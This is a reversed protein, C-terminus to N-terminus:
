GRGRIDAMLEGRIATLRKAGLLAPDEERSAASSSSSSSAAAARRDRLHYKLLSVEPRYYHLVKHVMTESQRDITFFAITFREANAQVMGEFAPLSAVSSPKLTPAGSRRWPMDEATANMTIVFVSRQAERAKARAEQASSYAPRGASVDWAFPVSLRDFSPADAEHMAYDYGFSVRSVRPMMHVLAALLGGPQGDEGLPFEARHDEYLKRRMVSLWGTARPDGPDKRYIERVMAVAEAEVDLDKPAGGGGPFRKQCYSEVEQAICTMCLVSQLIEKPIDYKRYMEDVKKKAMATRVAGDDVLPSAAVPAPALPVDSAPAEESTKRRKAERKDPAPPTSPKPSAPAAAAAGGGGGGGGAAADESKISPEMKERHGTGMGHAARVPPDTSAFAGIALEADNLNIHPSHQTNAEAAAGLFKPTMWPSRTGVGSLAM